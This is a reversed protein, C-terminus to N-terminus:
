ENPLILNMEDFSSELIDIYKASDMNREFIKLKVVRKNLIRGM